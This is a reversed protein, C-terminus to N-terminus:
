GRVERVFNAEVENSPLDARNLPAIILEEDVLLEVLIQEEEQFAKEEHLNLNEVMELRTPIYYVDKSIIKQVAHWNGRYKLNKLYIVQKVQTM